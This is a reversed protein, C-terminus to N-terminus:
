EETKKVYVSIYWYYVIDLVFLIWAFKWLHLAFGLALFLMLSLPVVPLMLFFGKRSKARLAAAYQYYAPITLFLMWLPHWLHTLFGLFLFAAVVILPYPFKLMKTGTGYNRGFGSERIEIGETM